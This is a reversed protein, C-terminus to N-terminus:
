NLSSEQIMKKQQGGALAFCKLHIRGPCEIWKSQRCLAFPSSRGGHGRSKALLDNKEKEDLPCDSPFKFGESINKKM